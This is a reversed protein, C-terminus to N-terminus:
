IGGLGIQRQPMQSNGKKLEKVIDQLMRNQERQTNISVIEYSTNGSARSINSSIGVSDASRAGRRAAIASDARDMQKRLNEQFKASASNDALYKSLLVGGIIVGAAAVVPWAGIGAATGAAATVGGTAAATTGAVATAEGAMAGAAALPPLGVLHRLVSKMGAKQIAEKATFGIVGAKIAGTAGGAAISLKIAGDISRLIDVMQTQKSGFVEFTLYEINSLLEKGWVDFNDNFNSQQEVSAKTNVKM